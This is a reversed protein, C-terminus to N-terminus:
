YVGEEFLELGECQQVALLMEWTKLYIGEQKM